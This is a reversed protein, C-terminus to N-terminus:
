RRRGLMAHLTCPVRHGKSRGKISNLGEKWGTGHLKQKCGRTEPKRADFVAIEHSVDLAWSGFLRVATYLVFRRGRPWGEWINRTQIIIYCSCFATDAKRGGRWRRGGGVGGEAKLIRQMRCRRRWRYLWCHDLRTRATRYFPVVIIHRVKKQM